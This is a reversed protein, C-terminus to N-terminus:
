AAPQQNSDLRPLWNPNAPRMEPMKEFIDTYKQPELWNGLKESWNEQNEFPTLHKELDILVKKGDLRLNSGIQTLIEHRKERDGKKFELYSGYAIDIAKEVQVRWNDLNGETDELRAKIEERERKLESKKAFYRQEDIQSDLRLDLLNNLRNEIQQLRKNQSALVDEQSESEYQHVVKIWKKAWTVFEEPPRINILKELIAKKLDEERFYLQECNIDKNKRTCHYYIYTVINNTKKYHKVKKTATIACGCTACRFLGTLDFTHSRAIPKGKNGLMKQIVDFQERSIMAEHKGEYWNGSEIPWEFMGYYFTNNLMRYFTSRAIPNGKPSTLKWKKAAIKYVQSAQKGKLVEDFCRKVLDYREEDKVIVRSGKKRGPTNKYGLPAHSPYWGMGAKTKMGRKANRGLDDIYKQAMGFEIYMMVSNQDQRSFKQHPTYITVDNQKISWIVSGGDIPNRALRDLKWCLIGDVKGSLVDEMMASFKPRGPAKASQEEEIPQGLIKLGEREAVKYLEEKQSQISLIQKGKDDSSKRCYMYVNKM